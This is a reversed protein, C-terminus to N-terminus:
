WKGFNENLGTSIFHLFRLFKIHNILVVVSICLSALLSALIPLPIWKSVYRKASGFWSPIKKPLSIVPAPWRSEYRQIHFSRGEDSRLLPSRLSSHEPMTPPSNEHPSADGSPNMFLPNLPANEMHNHIASLPLQFSLRTSTTPNHSSVDFSMRKNTHM